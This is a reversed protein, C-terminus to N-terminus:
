IDLPYVNSVDWKEILLEIFQASKESLFKMKMPDDCSVKVLNAGFLYTMPRIEFGKQASAKSAFKKMFGILYALTQRYAFPMDNIVNMFDGTKVSEVVKEQLERPILPDPLSSFWRKFLAGLDILSMENLANKDGSEIKEIIENIKAKNGPLIFIKNEQYVELSILAQICQHEFIPITLNPYQKKQQWLLEYISAGLFMRGDQTHSPISDIWKDTVNKLDDNAVCRSLFRIYALQAPAAIIKNTGLAALALAQKIVPTMTASAAFLTSFILLLEYTRITADVSPNNRTQKVLQMYVEDILTRNNAAEISRVFASPPSDQKRKGYDLIYTFAKIATKALKPDTSKLLPISSTNEEAQIADDIQYTSKKLFSKHKKVNMNEKAFTRLNIITQDGLVTSPLYSPINFSSSLLSDESIDSSFSSLSMGLTRKRRRTPYRASTEAEPPLLSSFDSTFMSKMRSREPQLSRVSKFEMRNMLQDSGISSVSNLSDSAMTWSGSLISSDSASDELDFPELTDGYYIMINGKPREWTTKNAIPDHFYFMDTKKDKYAYIRNDSSATFKSIM